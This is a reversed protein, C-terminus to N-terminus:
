KRFMLPAKRRALTFGAASRADAVKTALQLFVASICGIFASVPAATRDVVEDAEAVSGNLLRGGGKM